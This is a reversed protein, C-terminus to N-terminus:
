LDYWVCNVFSALLTGVYWTVIEQERKRLTLIRWILRICYLVHSQTYTRAYM